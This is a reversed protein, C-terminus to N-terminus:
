RTYMNFNGLVESPKIEFELEWTPAIVEETGQKRM